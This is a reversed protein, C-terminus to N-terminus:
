WLYKGFFATIKGAVGLKFPALVKESEALAPQIFFILGAAIFVYLYQRKFLV